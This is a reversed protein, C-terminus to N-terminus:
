EIMALTPQHVNTKVGVELVVSPDIPCCGDPVFIRLRRAERTCFELARCQLADLRHELCPRNDIRAEMKARPDGPICSACEVEREALAIFALTGRAMSALNFEALAQADIGGVLDLRRLRKSLAAPTM